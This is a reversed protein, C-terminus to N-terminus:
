NNVGQSLTAMRVGKSVAMAAGPNDGQSDFGAHHERVFSLQKLRQSM